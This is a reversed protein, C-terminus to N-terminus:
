RRLARGNEVSELGPVAPEIPRSGTAIVIDRRAHITEGGVAVSRPGNLVGHGRVLQGGRGKFRAQAHSDDWGGTAHERIRTAV